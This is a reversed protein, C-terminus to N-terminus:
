AATGEEEAAASLESSKARRGPLQPVPFGNHALWARQVHLAAMAVMYRATEEDASRSTAFHGAAWAIERGVADRVPDTRRASQEQMTVVIAFLLDGTDRGGIPPRGDGYQPEIWERLALRIADESNGSSPPRTGLASRIRARTELSAREVLEPTLGAGVPM